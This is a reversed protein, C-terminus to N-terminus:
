APMGRGGWPPRLCVGREGPALSVLTGQFEAARRPLRGPGWAGTDPAGGAPPSGSEAGRHQRTPPQPVRPPTSPVPRLTRLGPSDWAPVEGARFGLM